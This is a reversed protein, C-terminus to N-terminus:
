RPTYAQLVAEAAVLVQVALLFAQEAVAASVLV